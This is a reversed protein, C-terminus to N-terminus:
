QKKAGKLASLESGEIDMKIFTVKQDKIEEDISTIQLDIWEGEEYRYKEEIGDLNEAAAVDHDPRDFLRLVTTKEGLGKKIWDCEKLGKVNSYFRDYYDLSPEFMFIKKYKGSSWKIFDLTTGGDYVGADVFVENEDHQLFDEFYENVYIDRMEGISFLQEKEIGCSVLFEVVEEYGQKLSIVICAGKCRSDNGHLISLGELVGGAKNEDIFGKWNYRPFLKYVIDGWKGAGYIFLEREKNKDLWQRLKSVHTTEMVIDNICTDDKTLNYKLRGMFIAKSKDDLLNDYVKKTLGMFDDLEKKKM